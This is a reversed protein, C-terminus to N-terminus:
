RLNAVRGGGRVHALYQSMWRDVTWTMGVSSPFTSFHKCFACLLCVFPFQRACVRERERVCTCSHRHLRHESMCVQTLFPPAEPKLVTEIYLYPTMPLIASLFTHLNSMSISSAIVRVTMMTTTSHAYNGPIDFVPYCRM